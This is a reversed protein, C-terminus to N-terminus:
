KLRKVHNLLSELNSLFENRENNCQNASYLYNCSLQNTKTNSDQM